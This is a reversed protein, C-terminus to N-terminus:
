EEGVIYRLVKTLNTCDCWRGFVKIKSTAIIFFMKINFMVKVEQMCYRCTLTGIKSNDKNQYIFDKTANDGLEM